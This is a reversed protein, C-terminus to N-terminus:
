PAIRFVTGSDASGGGQSTTSYLAGNHLLLGAHPLAGDLGGGFSYLGSEKWVEANSRTLQFVTGIGQAGGEQTTGYLAGGVSIVGALPGVGDTRSRGFSYLVGYAWKGGPKSPPQMGFVTGGQHAGGNPTTGVLQGGSALLLGASSPFNGDGNTPSFNHIVVETWKDGSSPMLEFVTGCGVGGCNESGGESTTSYINGVKDFVVPASPSGGDNGGTFSYLVAETWAGGPAAPPSLEFVVGCGSVLASCDGASGGLSATGYLNGARLVLGASPLAGDSGGSFSYITTKTWSGGQVVPPSVEFVTGCGFQCDPNGGGNTTGYLNGEADFVLNGYPTAGDAGAAFSYIVSETWTVSPPVPPSLEYVSGADRAGGIPTTGYLNGASDLILGGRPLAGDGSYSGFAYIVTEHQAAALVSSVFLVVACISPCRLNVTSSVYERM